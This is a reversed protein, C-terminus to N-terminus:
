QAVEEITYTDSQGWVTLTVTNGTQSITIHTMITRYTVAAVCLGFLAVLVATLVRGFFPKM